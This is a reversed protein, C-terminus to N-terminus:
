NQIHLVTGTSLYHLRDGLVEKLIGYQALGTCHGTYYVTPYQALKRAAKTLYERDQINVFHFGGVLIDPQFHELIQLIGKHSCGSFLIRKGREEVLLYQEHRYDEPKWTGKELMIHGSEAQPFGALSRLFLGEAPSFPAKVPCFRPHKPLMPDLGIDRGKGNQHPEGAYPSAYVLATSNGELFRLMGGGHDYHGHSLVAFEVATLDAGLNEANSWFAGTQGADFLIKHDGTEIYLSLGHECVLDSRSTTNEMLTVIKM